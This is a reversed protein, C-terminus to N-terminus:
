AADEQYGATLRDLYDLAAEVAAEAGVERQGAWGLLWARAFTLLWDRVLDPEGYALLVRQAERDYTISARVLALADLVPERWRAEREDPTMIRPGTYVPIAQIEYRATHRYPPGKPGYRMGCRQSLTTHVRTTHSPKM